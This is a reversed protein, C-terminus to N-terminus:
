DVAFLTTGAYKEAAPDFLPAPQFARGGLAVDKLGALHFTGLKTERPPRGDRAITVADVFLREGRAYLIHPALQVAMSNYTAEVCRKLAIAEFLIPNITMM